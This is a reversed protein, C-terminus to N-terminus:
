PRRRARRDPSRQDARRQDACPEHEVTNSDCWRHSVALLQGHGCFQSQGCRGFLQGEGDQQRAVGGLVAIEGGEGPPVAFAPGGEAPGVDAALDGDEGGAVGGEADLAALVHQEHHAVAGLVPEAVQGEDVEPGDGDGDVPGGRRLLYGVDGAVAPSPEGHDLAGALQGPPFRQEGVGPDRQLPEDHGLGRLCSRVAAVAGQPRAARARVAGLGELLGPLLGTGLVRQGDDVGRAGGAVGLADAEGVAVDHQLRDPQVPVHCEGLVGLVDAVEGERVDGLPDQPDVQRQQPGGVDPQAGVRGGYRDRHALQVRHLEEAHGPHPLLQGGGYPRHEPPEGLLLAAGDFGRVVQRAGARAVPLAALLYRRSEFGRVGGRLLPHQIRQQVQGPQVAQDPRRARGGRHRDVHDAEPRAPPDGDHVRPPEGLGRPHARDVARVSEPQARHARGSSPSSSRSASSPSIKM